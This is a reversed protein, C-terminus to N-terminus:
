KALAAAPTLLARRCECVRQRAQPLIDIFQRPLTALGVRRMVQNLRFFLKADDAYDWLFRERCFLAIFQPLDDLLRGCIRRVSNQIATGDLSELAQYYAQLREPEASILASDLLIEVLIHGLFFPRFGQDAGLVAQLDRCFELSLEAFAPTEHFWADDRCHQAVGGALAAVCPDPDDTFLVAQRGRVRVKRDVVSLWDPLATGALLYPDDTFARGHAFYNM